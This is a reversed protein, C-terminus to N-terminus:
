SEAPPAHKQIQLLLPLVQAILSALPAVAEESITHTEKYVTVFQRDVEIKDFGIRFIQEALAM